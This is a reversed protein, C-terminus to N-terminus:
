TLRMKTCSLKKLKPGNRQNMPIINSVLANSLVLSWEWPSLLSCQPPAEEMDLRGAWTEITPSCIQCTTYPLSITICLPPSGLSCFTDNPIDMLHDERRPREKM